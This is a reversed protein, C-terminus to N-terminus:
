STPKYLLSPIHKSRPVNKDYLAVACHPNGNPNAQKSTQSSTLLCEADPLDQSRGVRCLKGRDELLHENGVWVARKQHLGGFILGFKGGLRLEGLIILIEDYDQREFAIKKLHKV